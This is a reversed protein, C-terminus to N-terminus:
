RPMSCGAKQLEDVLPATDNDMQLAFARYFSNMLMERQVTNLASDNQMHLLMQAAPPALVKATNKRFTFGFLSRMYVNSGELFLHIFERSLRELYERTFGDADPALAQCRRLQESELLEARMADKKEQSFENPTLYPHLLFCKIVSYDLKKPNREHLRGLHLLEREVALCDPCTKRAEMLLAHRKVPDETKQAADLAEQAQPPIAEARLIPAGCYPCFAAGPVPLERRCSACIQIFDSM